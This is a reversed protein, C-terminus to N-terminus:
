PFQHEVCRVWPVGGGWGVLRADAREGCRDVVHQGVIRGRPGVVLQGRHHDLQPALLGTERRGGHRRGRREVRAPHPGLVPGTRGGVPDRGPGAQWAPLHTGVHPEPPSQPHHRLGTVCQPGAGDAHGVGVRQGCQGAVRARGGAERVALGQQHGVGGRHPEVVEGARAVVPAIRGVRVPGLVAGRAVVIEAPDVQGGPEVTDAV